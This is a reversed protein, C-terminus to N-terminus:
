FNLIKVYSINDIKEKIIVKVAKLSLFDKENWFANFICRYRDKRVCKQIHNM